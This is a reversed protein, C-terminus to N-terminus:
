KQSPITHKLGEALRVLERLQGALEDMSIRVRSTAYGRPLHKINKPKIAGQVLDRLTTAVPVFSTEIGYKGGHQVIAPGGISAFTEVWSLLEEVLMHSTRTGEHPQESNPQNPDPHDPHEITLMVTNQEAESIFVSEMVGRVTEVSDAVVSLQRSLLVLQTGFFPETDQHGRRFFDRNNRWSQRLSTLYDAFIRFNTLDQEEDLRNVLSGSPGDGFLEDRLSGVIGTVLNPDSEFEGLLLWFLQNVRLMRPGGAVGLEAVLEGLHQRIIAKLAEVDELDADLRLAYLGELLPLSSTVAGQAQVYISAQAGSVGGSLDTQVAYTRPVWETKTHGQEDFSHFSLALAGAFAKPDPSSPRWKWGLVDSIASEVTTGLGTTSTGRAGGYGSFPYSETLLTFASLDQLTHELGEEGGANSLGPDPQPDATPKGTETKPKDAM